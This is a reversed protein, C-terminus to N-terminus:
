GFSLVLEFRCGNHVYASVSSENENRQKQCLITVLFGIIKPRM